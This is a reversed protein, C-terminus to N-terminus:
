KKANKMAKLVITGISIATLTTFIPHERMKVYISRSAHLNRVHLGYGSRFLYKGNKRPNFFKNKYQTRPNRIEMLRIENMGHLHLVRKDYESEEKNM